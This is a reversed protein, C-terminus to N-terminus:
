STGRLIKKSLSTDSVFNEYDAKTLTGSVQVISLKGGNKEKLQIPMRSEKAKKSGIPLKLCRVWCSQKGTEAPM